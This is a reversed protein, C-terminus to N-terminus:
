QKGRGIVDLLADAAKARYREKHRLGFFPRPDFVIPATHLTGAKIAPAVVLASLVAVGAGAEVATRVSENSPMVLTVDLAAPDVVVSLLYGDFTSRTGSGPERQVWRAGQLWAADISAKGFPESGVLLLRDQRRPM